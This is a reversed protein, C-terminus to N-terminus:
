DEYEEVVEEEVVEEEVFEEEDEIIDPPNVCVTYIKDARFIWKRGEIDEFTLLSPTPTEMAAYIDSMFDGHEMDSAVKFYTPQAEMEHRIFVRYIYSM